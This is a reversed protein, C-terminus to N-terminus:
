VLIMMLSIKINSIIKINLKYYFTHKNELFYNQICTIM